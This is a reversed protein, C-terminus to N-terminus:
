FNKLNDHLSRVAIEDYFVTYKAMIGFLNFEEVFQVYCVFVYM